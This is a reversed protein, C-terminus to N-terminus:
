VAIEGAWARRLQEIDIKSMGLMARVVRAAREPDPDGMLEGLASPIIQWSVGFRDKLWGCQSQEGGEALADWLRDVEAQDACDVYLSVAETFNGEPAGNLATFAQGGLEFSVSMATGPTGPSGEPFRTVDTIRSDPLLSTYLAAAEEAEDRFWLVPHVKQM